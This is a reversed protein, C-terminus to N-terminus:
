KQNVDQVQLVLNNIQHKDKFVKSDEDGYCKIQPQRWVKNKRRSKQVSMKQGRVILHKQVVEKIGMSLAYRHYVFIRSRFKILEKTWYGM